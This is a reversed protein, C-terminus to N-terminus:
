TNSTFRHWDGIEVALAFGTLTSVGKLAGLRHVLPTFESDTAMTTIAADLRDRRAAVSVVAEYDSEFTLQTAVPHFHASRRQAPGLPAYLGAM